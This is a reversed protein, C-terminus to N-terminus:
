LRDENRKGYMKRIFDQIKIPIAGHKIALQRKNLTLDYHPISKQQFWSRKLGIKAAIVHLESIDGDTVMHCWHKYKLPCNEGHYKVEDVYVAM